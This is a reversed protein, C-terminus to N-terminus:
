LKWRVLQVVDAHSLPSPAAKPNELDRKKYYRSPAVEFRYM